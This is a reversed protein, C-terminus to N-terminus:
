GHSSGPAHYRSAAVVIAGVIVFVALFIWGALRLFPDPPELAQSSAWSLWIGLFAFVFATRAFGMPKPQRRALMRPLGSVPILYGLVIIAGAVACALIPPAEGIVALAGVAVAVVLGLALSLPKDSILKNTAGKDTM